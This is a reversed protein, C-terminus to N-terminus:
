ARLFELIAARDGLVGHGLGSLYEIQARPVNLALRRKSQASDFIVDKEGLIALVPMTLRALAADSFLPLPEFRPRFHKQVLLMFERYRQHSASEASGPGVVIQMAKKRGWNGFLMLPLVKFLLSRRQRGVGGPVILVLREVRSPHRTAYDLALWGGLSIGIMAFKDVGLGERIDDLWLSYADSDLPPRSAASLGPEGIIDIAYVKHDQTWAGVNSIWMASNSGAGHLLLLAPAGEMGCSVVFSTGQRTPLEFQRNPQPWSKLFDRYIRAILQAGVESSYFNDM